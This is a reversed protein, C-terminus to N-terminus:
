FKLITNVLCATLVSQQILFLSIFFKCQKWSFHNFCFFLFFVAGAYEMCALKGSYGNFLHWCTEEKSNFNESYQLSFPACENPWPHQVVHNKIDTRKSLYTHIPNGYPKRMNNSSECFENFWQPLNIKHQGTISLTMFPVLLSFHKLCM